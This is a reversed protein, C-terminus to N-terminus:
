LEVSKRSIRDSKKVITIEQFTRSRREKSFIMRVARYVWYFPLLWHYRKLVPCYDYQEKRGKKQSSIM